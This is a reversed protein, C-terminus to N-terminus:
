TTGLMFVAGYLNFLIGLACVTWAPIGPQYGNKRGLFWLLVYPFLDVTYRAGFQWGGFTRHLCTLVLVLLCSGALVVGHTPLCFVKRPQGHLRVACATWLAFLPNAVFPLFGNFIPFSLQGSADITLPRLLNLLNPFLYAIHFQGYEAEVFEPLYNHGFELVSGFRVYNYSMMAIAALSIPLIAAVFERVPVAHRFVRYLMQGLWLAPLLAYFPRCGVALGFCLSALAQAPLSSQMAYFIGWVSFCLGLVQAMFWVGGDCSLWFTNSGMTVFLAFFACCPVSAGQYWFCAYVGAACCLAFLLIAFNSPVASASGCLLVWPLMIVSPVPPFSLYYTGNYIALELWTYQEGNQISLSGALWNEAQISYSDYWSHAFLTGGALSHYLVLAAALCLLVAALAFWYQRRSDSQM